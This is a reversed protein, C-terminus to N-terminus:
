ASEGDSEMYCKLDQRSIKGRPCRPIEELRVLRAPVMYQPLAGALREVLGEESVSQEASYFACLEDPRGEVGDVKVVAADWVGDAGMLCSEIDGLEVRYGMIKVQHDTRGLFEYHGSGNLLVRDGTRYVVGKGPHSIFRERTLEPNNWYGPSLCPGFLGLEGEREGEAIEGSGALIAAGTGEKCPLGLPIRSNEDGPAAQVLHCMSVGTAETPGYCNYFSVGPLAKMWDALVPLPLVEGAFMVRTLSPMGGETVVGARRMYMLLSSVGKWVTVENKEMYKVLLPPFLTMMESAVYLCGGSGLAAYIDFTSMDSSFPATGLIRDGPVLSFNDVMWRLYNDVNAHTIMVGKPSGTSGSTYMIYALDSGGAGADDVDPAGGAERDEEEVSLFPISLGATGLASVVKGSHAEDTIVAAPICDAMVSAIRAEPMRHDAPVYAAGIRLCGLIAPMIDVSRGMVLAVRHGSAVGAAALRGAIERSLGDVGAWSLTRSGDHIAPSGPSSELRAALHETILM